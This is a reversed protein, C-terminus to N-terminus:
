WREASGRRQEPELDRLEALEVKATREAGIPDFFVYCHDVFPAACLRWVVGYRGLYRQIGFAPDVAGPADVLRVRQSVRLWNAAKAVIEATETPTLHAPRDARPPGFTAFRDGAIRELKDEITEDPTRDWSPAPRHRHYRTVPKATFLDPQHGIVRRREQAAQYDRRWHDEDTLPRAVDPPARVIAMLEAFAERSVNAINKNFIM